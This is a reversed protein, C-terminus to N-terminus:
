RIGSDTGTKETNAMKVETKLNFKVVSDMGKEKILRIIGLTKESQTHSVLKDIRM